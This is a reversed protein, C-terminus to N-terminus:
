LVNNLKGKQFLDLLTIKGHFGFQGGYPQDEVSFREALSKPAITAGMSLLADLYFEGSYGELGNRFLKIDAPHCAEVTAPINLSAIMEIMRRTIISFGNNGVVGDAWPAGIFDYDLFRDDWASEKVPYGDWQINMVHTTEFIYSSKPFSSLSWVSVDEWTPFKDIKFIEPTCTSYVTSLPRMFRREDDTFVVIDYPTVIKCTRAIANAAASHDRTAICLLTVQPLEIM